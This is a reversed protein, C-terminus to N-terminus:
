KGKKIAIVKPFGCVECEKKAPKILANSPLSYTTRCKPYLNCACFSGFRGKRIVLDGKKCKPCKGLTTMEARTEKQAELLEKGISKEHKKFDDIIKTIADKAEELIQEKKSEGDRIKEMEDEFHRTLEEEVIKPCYKELIEVTQIGLETAEIARGDM